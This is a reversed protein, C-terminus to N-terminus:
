RSDWVLSVRNQPNNKISYSSMVTYPLMINNQNLFYSVPHMDLMNFVSVVDSGVQQQYQETTVQYLSM